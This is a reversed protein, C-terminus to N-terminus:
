GSHQVGSVLLFYYQSDVTMSFFFFFYHMTGELSSYQQPSDRFLENGESATVLINWVTATRVPLDWRSFWMFCSKWDVPSPLATLSCNVKTIRLWRARANDTVSKCRVTNQRTYHVTKRGLNKLSFYPHANYMPLEQFVTYRNKHKTM